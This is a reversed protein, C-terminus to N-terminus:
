RLEALLEINMRGPWSDVKIMVRQGPVDLSDPYLPIINSKLYKEFEDDDM